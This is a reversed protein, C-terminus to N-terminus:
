HRIFRINSNINSFDHLALKYNLQLPSDTYDSLNLCFRILSLSSMLACQVITCFMLFSCLIKMPWLMKVCCENILQRHNNAMSESTKVAHLDISTFRHKGDSWIVVLHSGWRGGGWNMLIIDIERDIQFFM